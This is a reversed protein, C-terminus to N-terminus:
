DNPAGNEIWTRIDDLKDMDLAGSGAIPNIPMRLGDISPDGILKLWLYSNALNGPDILPRGMPDQASPMMLRDYLGSGQLTLDEEPDLDDHCGSCNAEILPRIRSAFGTGSGEVALGDLLAPNQAYSCGNYDIPDFLNVTRVAPDLGEIFCFLALMEPVSFPENALPMRSGPVPTGGMHGRLRGVLYSTEPDGARIMSIPGTRVGMVNPRAGYVGNRNLDGQEIGSAMFSQIANALYGPVEAVVHHGDDFIRYRQEYRFYTLDEVTNGARVFTRVFRGSTYRGDYSTAVPDSFHMHLGPMDPGVVVMADGEPPIYEVWGIEVERNDDFTFRDGTRECRDFVGEPTGSQINCPAGITSAFNAPTHLDPYEKENHCVGNIPGCSRIIVEAQLESGTPLAAQAELVAAESGTYPTVTRTPGFFPAGGDPLWELGPPPDGPDAHRFGGDQCAVLSACILLLSGIRRNTM